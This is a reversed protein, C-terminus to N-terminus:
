GSVTNANGAADQAAGAPISVTVTGSQTMGSVAVNYTTGSGTVVVSNAGATGGLTVDTIGFGTVAENFTVTFNIPSTGTPNAQGTAPSVTVTPPTTDALNYTVSATGSATNTNGAADQAVGAPISLTVTGSQTMGSVAVNYTTGSGTVVASNAGATGGLTVDTNAFGTVSETFVVAF